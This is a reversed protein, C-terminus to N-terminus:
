NSSKRRVFPAVREKVQAVKDRAEEVFEAGREELREARGAVADAAEGYKRRLLRRTQRGSQPALILAVAAGVATGLMFCTLALGSAHRYEQNGERETM